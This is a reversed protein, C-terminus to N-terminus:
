LLSITKHGFAVIEAKSTIIDNEKAKKNGPVETEKIM